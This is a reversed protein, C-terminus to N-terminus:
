RAKVPQGGPARRLERDKRMRQEAVGVLDRGEGADRPFTAAGVNVSCRILKTGANLTSAHVAGRIRQGTASAAALDSTPLLVAFEDGSWRAALDTDRLTRRLVNGVLKLAADGAETGLEGNIRALEDVDVVLLSYCARSREANAQERKLAEEFVARNALGTLPDSETLETARRRAALVATGLRSTLWAVLLFPGIAGFLRGAFAPTAIELGAGLAAVAAYATAIAGVLLWLHSPSLVLAALVIPLLYLSLLPSDAGGTHWVVFTVFLATAWTQVALKAGAHEGFVRPTRLLLSSIAFAGMALLMALPFRHEAAVTQYLAVVALVLWDALAVHRVLADLDHREAPASARRETLM